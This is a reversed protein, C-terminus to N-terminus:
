IAERTRKELKKVPPSPPGSVHDRSSQRCAAGVLALPLIEPLSGNSKESMEVITQKARITRKAAVVSGGCKMIKM